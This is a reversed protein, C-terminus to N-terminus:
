CAVLTYTALLMLLLLYLPPLRVALLLLTFSVPLATLRLGTTCCSNDDDKDDDDDGGGGNHNNNALLLCGSPLRCCAVAKAWLRRPM